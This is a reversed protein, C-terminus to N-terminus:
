RVYHPNLYVKFTRLLIVLDTIPGYNELYFLDYELKARTEEATAAYGFYVQSWGSLGPRVLHRLDYHPIIRRYTEVLATQEPRPGVLSMDGRLVNWLQPLEDLHSQRLFQGIPTIRQDHAGTADANCGVSTRMTRLKFLTFSRGRLGVRSQSFLAPSGSSMRVAILALALVPLVAPVALLVVVIDVLRKLASYLAYSSVRERVATTDVQELPRYSPSVYLTGVHEMKMLM